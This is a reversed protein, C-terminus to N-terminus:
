KLKTFYKFDQETPLLSPHFVKILDALLRDPHFPIEEYFAVSLTNCGYVNGERFPKFRRYIPNDESLEKMTKDSSQAYRVLWIDADGAKYLVQEGSLQRSGTGADAFPNVGGADEIFIGITTQKGPVSWSSGYLRDLLVKPKTTEGSAITKLDLYKEETASFLKEMESENGYLLGYFKAWEARGLPSTEMYDACEILPIGLSGLKGYNGSTEYPSLLIGDPNLRIIREIDPSMSNGCDTIEGSDIKERLSRRTIFNSDCIGTVGSIVGTEELLGLHIASYVLSNKLPTRVITGEPLDAPIDASDPILIYTHLLKATDWPNRLDAKVFDPYRTLKLNEAYKLGIPTGGESKPSYNGSGCSALLSLMGLFFAAKITFSM